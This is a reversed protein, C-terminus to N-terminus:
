GLNLFLTGIVGLIASIVAGLIMWAGPTVEYRSVIPEISIEDIDWLANEGTQIKITQVDRAKDIYRLIQLPRRSDVGYDEGHPHPKVLYIKDVLHENVLISATSRKVPSHLMGHTRITDIRLLAGILRRRIHKPITLEWIGYGNCLIITSPTFEKPRKTDNAFENASVHGNYGESRVDIADVGEKSIPALVERYERLIGIHKALM